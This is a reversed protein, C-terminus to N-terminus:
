YTAIGQRLASTPGKLRGDSRTKLQLTSQYLAAVQSASHEWSRGRCAMLSAQKAALRAGPNNILLMLRKQIALINLRPLIWDASDDAQLEMACVMRSAIVPLGCAMAELVCMGFEELRAPHVIIDMARYYEEVAAKPSLFHFRDSLGAEAAMRRFRSLRRDKGIVLTAVRERTSAPLGAVAAILLDAGRKHLDGSTVLGLVVDTSAIGLRQRLRCPSTKAAPHFRSADYGPYIIRIRQPAIDHREVLEQHMFHSNAVITRYHGLALIRNAKEARFRAGSLASLGPIATLALADCNHWHLIDQRSCEGHGCVLDYGQRTHKLVHREFDRRRLSRGPWWRSTQHLAAGTSSFRAVDVRQSLIDVQWGLKHVFHRTYHEVLTNKGSLGTLRQACIAIRPQQKM